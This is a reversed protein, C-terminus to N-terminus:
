YARETEGDRLVVSTSTKRRTSKTTCVSQRLFVVSAACSTRMASKWKSRPSNQKSLDTKLIGFWKSLVSQKAANLTDRLVENSKRRLLVTRCWHKWTSATCRSVNLLRLQEVDQARKLLFAERAAADKRELVVSAANSLWPGAYRLGLTKNAARCRKTAALSQQRFWAQHNLRRYWTLLKVAAAGTKSSCVAEHSPVSPPCDCM